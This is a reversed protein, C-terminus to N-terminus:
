DSSRSTKLVPSSPKGDDPEETRPIQANKIAERLKPEQSGDAATKKDHCHRHYLAKNPIRNNGGLTKPTLHDTEMLDEDKFYLGCGKCRGKQRALLSVKTGSILPHDKLRRAWYTLNGDFPSATGKVKLHRTIPTAAHLLLDFGDPTTFRWRNSGM